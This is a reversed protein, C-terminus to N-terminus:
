IRPVIPDDPVPENLDGNDTVTDPIPATPLGTQDEPPRDRTSEGNSFSCGVTFLFIFLIFTTKM